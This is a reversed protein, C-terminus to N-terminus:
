DKRKKNLADKTEQISQKIDAIFESNIEKLSRKSGFASNLSACMWLAICVSVIILSYGNVSYLQFWALFMIVGCIKLISLILAKLSLNQAALYFNTNETLSGSRTVFFRQWLAFLLEAWFISTLVVCSSFGMEGSNMLMLACVMYSVTIATANDIEIKVDYFNICLYATLIGALIGGCLAFYIPAAGLCAMGGLGLLVMTQTIVFTHPIFNNLIGGLCYVSAFVFLILQVLWIPLQPLPSGEGLPQLWVTLAICLLTVLFAKRESLFMCSAYVLPSLLLPMIMRWFTLTEIFDINDFGFFAILTGCVYLTYIYPMPLMSYSFKLTQAYKNCQPKYLSYMGIFGALAFILFYLLATM